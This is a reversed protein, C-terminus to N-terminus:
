YLVLLLLGSVVFTSGTLEIPTIRERFLFVTFLLTFLLEIQGLARVLAAKEITMATFWGTSAIMGALGVWISSRWTRAVRLISNNQRSTHPGWFSLYLSMTIMQITTAAAVTMAARVFFEGEPLSLSAARYCVAAAGFCTGTAIGFWGAIGPGQSLIQRWGQRMSLLLVGFFSILIGVLASWTITEGLLLLGFLVIQMTETKSYATGVTFNRTEFARLLFFTGFIQPLAGAVAYGLFSYNINPFEFDNLVLYGVYLWAFPMGFCFRVSAAEIAMLETNALRRELATRLTQSFAAGLTIAVWLEM